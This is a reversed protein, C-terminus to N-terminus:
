ANWTKTWTHSQTATMHTRDGHLSPAPWDTQRQKHEFRQLSSTRRQKGLMRAEARSPAWGEGECPDLGGGTM